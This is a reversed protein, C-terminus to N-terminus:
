VYMQKKYQSNRSLMLWEITDAKTIAEMIEESLFRLTSHLAIVIKM